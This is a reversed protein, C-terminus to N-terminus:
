VLGVLSLGHSSYDLSRTDRKIGTKISEEGIYGSNLLKSSSLEHTGSSRVM